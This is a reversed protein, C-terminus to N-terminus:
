LIEVGHSLLWTRVKPIECPSGILRVADNEESITIMFNHELHSRHNSAEEKPLVIQTHDRFVSAAVM